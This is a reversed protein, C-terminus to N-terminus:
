GHVRGLRWGQLRTLTPSSRKWRDYVLLRGGWKAKFDRVGIEKATQPSPNVGALDYIRAGATRAVRMSEWTLLDQAPIRRERAVPTISTSVRFAVGGWVAIGGVALTAGDGRDTALLYHYCRAAEAAFSERVREEPIPTKVGGGEFAPNVHSLFDGADRVARVCVNLREARRLKERAKRGLRALVDEESGSIDVLYTAWPDLRYGHAAFTAALAADGQHRSMKALGEFSVDALRWALLRREVAGLLAAVAERALAGEFIVPGDTCVIKARLKGIRSPPHTVTFLAALAYRDRDFV